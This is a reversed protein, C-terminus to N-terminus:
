KLKKVKALVKSVKPGTGSSLVKGNADIIVLSPFGEAPFVTTLYNADRDAIKLGPFNIKSKVLYKDMAKQSDDYNMLIYEVNGSTRQAYAEVLQPTV